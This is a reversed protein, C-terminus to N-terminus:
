KFKYIQIHHQTNVYIVHAAAEEDERKKQEEQEKRSLVRKGTNGVTYAQLKQETIKQLFYIIRTNELPWVYM